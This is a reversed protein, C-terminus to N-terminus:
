RGAEPPEAAAGAATAEVVARGAGVPTEPEQVRPEADEGRTPADAGEAPQGEGEPDVQEVAQIEPEESGPKGLPYYTFRLTFLLENSPQVEYQYPEAHAFHHDTLLETEFETLAKLSKATGQVMVKINRTKDTFMEAGDNRDGRFVPRVSSLQVNWPQIQEMRNFLQTWSFAKWGIVQNAKDVQLRLSEMDRGGIGALARQERLDLDELQGAFTNRADSMEDLLRRHESYTTTNWATFAILLVLGLGLGTWPLTNNVFPRSALNVDLSQGM